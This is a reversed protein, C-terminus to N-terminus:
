LVPPKAPCYGWHIIHLNNVVKSQCARLKLICPNLYTRDDSGCVPQVATMSCTFSCDKEDMSTPIQPERKIQHVYDQQPKEIHLEEQVPLKPPEKIVKLPTPPIKPLQRVLRLRAQEAQQRCDEQNVATWSVINLETQQLCADRLMHCTSAYMNGNSACLEGMQLQCRGSVQLDSLSLCTCVAVKTKEVDNWTECIAGPHCQKNLCPDKKPLCM